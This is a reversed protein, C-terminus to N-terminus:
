IKSLCKRLNVTAEILPPKKASTPEFIDACHVTTFFVAWCLSETPFFHFPMKFVIIKHQYYKQEPYRKKDEIMNKISTFFVIFLLFVTSLESTGHYLTKMILQSTIMFIGDKGAGDGAM